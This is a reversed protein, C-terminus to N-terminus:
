ERVCRVSHAHARSHSDFLRVFTPSYVFHGISILNAIPTTTTCFGAGSQFDGTTYYRRLATPYWASGGFVIPSSWRYGSHPTIETLGNWSGNDLEFAHWPNALEADGSSRPVRWGSPCPDFLTKTGDQWLDDNQPTTWDNNEGKLYFSGPNRIASFITVKFHFKEKM